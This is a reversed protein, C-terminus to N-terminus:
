KGKPRRMAEHELMRKVFLDLEKEQKENCLSKIDTFYQFRLKEIEKQNIALEAFVSDFDIKDSRDNNLYISKRIGKIKKSYRDIQNFHAKEMKDIKSKTDKEFHIVDKIKPPHHTERHPRVLFYVCFINLAILAIILYNKFKNKM